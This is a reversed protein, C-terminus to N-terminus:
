KPPLNVGAPSRASARLPFKVISCIALLSKTVGDAM